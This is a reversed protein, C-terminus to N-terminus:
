KERWLEPQITRAYAAAREFEHPWMQKFTDVLIQDRTRAASQRELRRLRGARETVIQRLSRKFRVASEAREAWASVDVSDALQEEIRNIDRSLTLLAMQCSEATTLDALTVGDAVEVEDEQLLASM